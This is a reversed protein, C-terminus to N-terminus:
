FLMFNQLMEELASFLVNAMIGLTILMALYTALTCYVLDLGSMTNKSFTTIVMPPVTLLSGLFGLLLVVAFFKIQLVAMVFAVVFLGLFPILFVGFRSIVEKYSANGKGLKISVFTYTGVLLIFIAYGFAPKLVVNLFPNEIYETYEKAGFYVMLPLFLAYLCVTIMANLIQEAGVYQAEGYPKKLVKKFLAFYSSSTNKINSLNVNVGSPTIQNNAIEYTSRSEGEIGVTVLPTGCKGCYKGGGSQIVKCTECYM